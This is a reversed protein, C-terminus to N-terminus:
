GLKEGVYVLTQGAGYHFDLLGQMREPTGWELRGRRRLIEEYGRGIVNLLGTEDLDSLRGIPGDGLRTHAPDAHDAAPVSYDPLIFRAQEIRVALGDCAAAIRDRLRELGDVQAQLRDRAVERVDRRGMFELETKISRSVLDAVLQQWTQAFSAVPQMPFPQDAPHVTMQRILENLHNSLLQAVPLLDCTGNGPNRNLAEGHLRLADNLENLVPRVVSRLDALLENRHDTWVARAAETLAAAPEGEGAHPGIARMLDGLQRRLALVEAYVPANASFDAAGLVIRRFGMEDLTRALESPTFSRVHQWAHFRHDCNVCYVSALNMPESNPTSVVLTGGPRLLSSLRARFADWEVSLVHEITELCFLLDFGGAAAELGESSLVTVKPNNRLEAPLGHDAPEFVGVDYGADLLRRTFQGAGAGFDLARGTTPIYPAVLQLLQTGATAAFGIEALGSSSIENWFQRVREPTWDLDHAMCFFGANWERGASSYNSPIVVGVICPRCEIARSASVLQFSFERNNSHYQQQANGVVPRCSDARRRREIECDAALARNLWAPGRRASGRSLERWDLWNSAFKGAFM